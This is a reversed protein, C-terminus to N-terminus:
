KCRNTSIVIDDYTSSPMRNQVSNDFNLAFGATVNANDLENVDTSGSNVRNAIASGNGPFAGHGNAGHSIIALVAKKGTGPSGDGSVSIDASASEHVLACNNSVAPVLQVNDFFIAGDGGTCASCVAKIKVQNPSGGTGGTVTYSYTSMSHDANRPPIITDVLSGGWYLEVGATNDSMWTAIPKGVDISLTYSAGNTVGAVTQYFTRPNNGSSSTGEVLLLGDSVKVSRDPGVVCNDWQSVWVYAWSAVGGQDVNWGDLLGSSVEYGYEGKCDGDNYTWSPAIREFSGNNVLNVAAASAPFFAVFCGICWCTLLKQILVRISM